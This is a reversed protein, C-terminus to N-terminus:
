LRLLRQLWAPTVILAKARLAAIGIRPLDASSRFCIFHLDQKRDTPEVGGSEIACRRGVLGATRMGTLIGIGPMVNMVIQM